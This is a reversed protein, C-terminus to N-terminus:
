ENADFKVVQGCKNMTKRATKLHGEKEAIRCVDLVEISLIDAIPRRGLKQIPLRLLYLAKDKTSEAYKQKALWEM